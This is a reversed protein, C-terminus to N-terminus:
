HVKFYDIFALFASVIGTGFIASAVWFAGQGASRLHLLQDLKDDISKLEDNIKDVKTKLVAIDATHELHTSM